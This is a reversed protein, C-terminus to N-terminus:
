RSAPSVATEWSTLHKKFGDDFGQVESLAMNQKLMAKRSKFERETEHFASLRTM